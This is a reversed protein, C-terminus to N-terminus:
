KAYKQTWERATADFKHRNTRYVRGVETNMPNTANPDCLFACISILVKSVTLAPAWKDKLIDLCIAGNNSVNPHYVRTTFTCHPPRFPYEKPFEIRLKFTGGEYPSDPPGQISANWILLNSNDVPGATYTAVPERELDKLEQKIRNMAAM